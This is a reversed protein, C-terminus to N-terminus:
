RGLDYTKLLFTKNFNIIAKAAEKGIDNELESQWNETAPVLVTDYKNTGANWIPLGRNDVEILEYQKRGGTDVASYGFIRNSRLQQLYAKSYSPVDQKTVAYKRDKLYPSYFENRGQIGKVDIGLQVAQELVREPLGYSGVYELSHKVSNKLYRRLEKLQGANVSDTQNIDILTEQIGKLDRDSIRQEGTGKALDRAVLQLLIPVNAVFERTAEKGEETQWWAGPDMDTKRISFERLPGIIFGPLGSKKMKVDISDIRALTELSKGVTEGIQKGKSNNLADNLKKRKAELAESVVGIKADKSLRPRLKGALVTSASLNEALLRTQIDRKNLNQIVQRRNEIDTFGANDSLPPPSKTSEGFKVGLGKDMIVLKGFGSTLNKRSVPFPGKNIVKDADQTQFEPVLEGYRTQIAASNTIQEPPIVARTPARPLGLNSPSSELFDEIFATDLDVLSQGQRINKLSGLYANKLNNFFVEQQKKSFKGGDQRTFPFDVGSALEPNRNYKQPDFKLGRKGIDLQERIRPIKSLMGKFKSLFEPDKVGKPKTAATSPQKEYMRYDGPNDGITIVENNDARYQKFGDKTYVIKTEVIPGFVIKAPDNPDRKIERALGADVVKDSSAGTKDTGKLNDPLTSHM